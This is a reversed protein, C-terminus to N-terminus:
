AHPPAMCLLPRGCWEAYGGSSKDADDSDTPDIFGDGEPDRGTAPSITINGKLDRSVMQTDAIIITKDGAPISIFDSKKEEDPPGPRSREDSM